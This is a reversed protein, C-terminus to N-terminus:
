YVDSDSQTLHWHSENSIVETLHENGAVFIFRQVDLVPMQANEYHVEYRHGRPLWATLTTAGNKAAYADCFALITPLQNELEPVVFLDCIHLLTETGSSYLKLALVGQGDEIDFLAYHQGPKRYRWNLYTADRHIAVPFVTKSWAATAADTFGHCPQIRITPTASGGSQISRKRWPTQCLEHYRGNRRFGGVAHDNPFGYAIEGNRLAESRTHEMLIGHYRRGRHSPHTMVDLQMRAPLVQGQFRIPQRVTSYLGVVEADEKICYIKTDGWPTRFYQWILGERSRPVMPMCVEMLRMVSALDKEEALEIKPLESSEIMKDRWYMRKAM